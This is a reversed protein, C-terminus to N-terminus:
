VSCLLLSQPEILALEVIKILFKCSRRLAAKEKIINFSNLKEERPTVKEYRYNSVPEQVALLASILAM